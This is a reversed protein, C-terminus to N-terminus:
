SAGSFFGCDIFGMKWSRFGAPRGLVTAGIAKTYNLGIKEKSDSLDVVHV